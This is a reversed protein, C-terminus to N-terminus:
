HRRAHDESASSVFEDFRARSTREQPRAPSMAPLAELAATLDDLDGPEVVRAHSRQELVAAIGSDRSVILCCGHAEGEIVPLGVQERWRPVSTSPLVVGRASALLRHLQARTPQLLEIRADRSAYGSIEARLPGDGCIVLDWGDGPLSSRSWAALLSRVGKRVSLEGVFLLRRARASMPLPHAGAPGFCTVCHGDSEPILTTVLEASRLGLGTEYNRQAAPTGYAVGDLTARATAAVLARGVQATLQGLRPFKALAPLTLREPPPMNEIAYTVVFAPPRRLRRRLLRTGLIIVVMRPWYRIWLPEPVEITAVEAGCCARLTALLSAHEASSAPLLSRDLDERTGWYLLRQDADGRAREIV